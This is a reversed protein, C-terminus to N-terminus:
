RHPRDDRDLGRRALRQARELEDTRRRYLRAFGHGPSVYILEYGRELQAAVWEGEAHDLEEVPETAMVLVYDISGGTREDYSLFGVEPPRDDIAEGIHVYPDREERYRMPFYGLVEPSLFLNRLNIVNREIGIHGPAHYLPNTRWTLRRGSRDDSEHWFHIPLLTSNPAIWDAASVYEELFGNLRHYQWVRYGATAVCVVAVVTLISRRRWPGPTATALWFFTLAFLFPM